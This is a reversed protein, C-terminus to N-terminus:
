TERVAQQPRMVVEDHRSWLRVEGRSHLPEVAHMRLGEVVRVSLKAAEHPVAVVGLEDLRLRM